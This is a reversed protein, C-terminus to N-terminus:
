LLEIEWQQSPREDDEPMIVVHDKDYSKGGSSIFCSLKIFHLVLELNLIYDWAIIFISITFIYKKTASLSPVCECSYKKVTVNYM